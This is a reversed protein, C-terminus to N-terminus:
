NSTYSSFTICNAEYISKINSCNASKCVDLYVTVRWPVVTCWWSCYLRNANLINFSEHVPLGTWNLKFDFALCLSLQCLCSFWTWLYGLNLDFEAKNRVSVKWNVNFLILGSLKVSILDRIAPQIFEILLICRKIRRLQLATWWLSKITIIFCHFM